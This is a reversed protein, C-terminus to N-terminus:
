AVMRGSYLPRIHKGFHAGVSPAALLKAHTDHDVGEYEYVKGSNFEVHM